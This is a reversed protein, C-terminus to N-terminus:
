SSKLKWVGNIKILSLSMSNGKEGNGHLLQIAVKATADDESVEEELILVEKLGENKDIDAKFAKMIEKVFGKDKESFEAGDRLHTISIYGELDGKVIYEMMANAVDSPSSNKSVTDGCSSFTLFAALLVSIRIINKM